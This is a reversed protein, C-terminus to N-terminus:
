FMVAELKLYFTKVPPSNEWWPRNYILRVTEAGMKVCKIRFVRTGGAGVMGAASHTDGPPVFVNSILQFKDANLEDVMWMYGTTPNEPLRIEVVSGVQVAVTQRNYSEDFFPPLSPAMIKMGGAAEQAMVPAAVSMAVLMIAALKNM